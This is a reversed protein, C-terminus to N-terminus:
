VAMSSLGLVPFLSEVYFTDTLVKGKCHHDFFNFCTKTPVFPAIDLFKIYKKRNLGKKQWDVSVLDLLTASCTCKHTTCCGM